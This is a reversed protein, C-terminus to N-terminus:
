EKINDIIDNLEEWLEFSDYEYDEHETDCLKQAVKCLRNYDSKSIQM